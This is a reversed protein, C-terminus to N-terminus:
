MNYAVMLFFVLIFFTIKSDYIYKVFYYQKKKLMFTAKSFMLCEKLFFTVFNVSGLHKFPLIFWIWMFQQCKICLIRYYMAFFFFRVLHKIGILYAIPLYGCQCFLFLKCLPWHGFPCPTIMRHLFDFLEFWIILVSPQHSIYRYYGPTFLDSLV